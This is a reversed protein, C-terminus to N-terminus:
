CAATCPLGLSIAVPSCWCARLAWSISAFPTPHTKRLKIPSLEPEAGTNICYPNPIPLYGLTPFTIWGPKGVGVGGVGWVQNNRFYFEKQGQPVQQHPIWQERVAEATCFYTVAASSDRCCCPPLPSCPSAARQRAGMRGRIQPPHDEQPQLSQPVLRHELAAVVFGWSAMQMCISSYVTSHLSSTLARPRHPVALFRCCQLEWGLGGRGFPEWAM